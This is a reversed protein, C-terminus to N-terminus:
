EGQGLTFGPEGDYTYLNETKIIDVGAAALSGLLELCRGYDEAPGDFRFRCRWHDTCFTEPLGEPYVKVGRNTILSLHAGAPAASQLWGALTDARRGDQDWYVFVDVGVLQRNSRPPSSTQV